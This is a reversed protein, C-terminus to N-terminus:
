KLVLDRLVPLRLLCQTSTMVQAGEAGAHTPLRGAKKRALDDDISRRQNENM